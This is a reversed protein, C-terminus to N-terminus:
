TMWTNCCYFYASFFLIRDDVSYYRNRIPSLFCVPFPIM